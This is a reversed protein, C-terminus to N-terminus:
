INENIIYGSYQQYKTDAYRNFHSNICSLLFEVYHFALAALCELM